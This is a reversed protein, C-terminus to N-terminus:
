GTVKPTLRLEGPQAEAQKPLSGNDWTGKKRYIPMFPLSLFPELM